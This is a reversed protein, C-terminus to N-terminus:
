TENNKKCFSCFPTPAFEELRHKYYPVETQLFKQGLCRDYYYRNDTLGNVQQGNNKTEKSSIANFTSSNYHLPTFNQCFQMTQHQINSDNWAHQLQEVASLLKAYANQAADPQFLKNVFLNEKLPTGSASSNYRNPLLAYPNASPLEFNSSLSIPPVYHKQNPYSLEDSEITSWAPGYENRLFQVSDQNQLMASNKTIAIMGNLSPDQSPINTYICQKISLKRDAIYLEQLDKHDTLINEVMSMIFKHQLYDFAETECNEM